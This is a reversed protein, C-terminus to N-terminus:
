SSKRKRWVALGIIGAGLLIVTSPEPVPASSERVLYSGLQIYGVNTYYMNRHAWTFDYPMSAEAYIIAEWVQGPYPTTDSILGASYAAGTPSTIGFMSILSGFTGKPWMVEDYSSVTSGTWNSILLNFEDGSAFRWGDFTGGAVLQASVNDYSMGLTQTLDLWDLNTATDTTFGGNDIIASQAPLALGIMMAAAILLKHDLRMITGRELQLLKTQEGNNQMMTPKKFAYWTGM